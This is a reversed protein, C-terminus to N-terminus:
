PRLVRAGPIVEAPSQGARLHGEIKDLATPLDAVTDIVLHAGASELAAIAGSRRRELEERPLRSAEALSLGLANGSLAVGIAWSGAALGEALGPATDDVKVCAAAPFVGLEVFCRYMMLPTPRGACLDDACVLCDPRYGRAAAEPGLIDMVARTYGTTSGIKLGKGRAHAVADLAGPIPEACALLAARSAPVFDLLLSRADEESFPRGGRAQSWAAGIRPQRALLRIHDLKPLGMPGRAEEITIEVGRRAFIEVFTRAPAVSGFDVITGAWDFIVARLPGQYPERM